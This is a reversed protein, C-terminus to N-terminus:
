INKWLGNEFTRIWAQDCRGFLALLYNANASVHSLKKPLSGALKDRNSLFRASNEACAQQTPYRILLCRVIGNKEGATYEASLAETEMGLGLLNEEGLYIMSNLSNQTHFYCVSSEILGESPLASLLGPKDQARPEPLRSSILRGFGLLGQRLGGELEFDQIRIFYRNQWFQL